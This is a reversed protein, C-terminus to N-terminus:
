ARTEHLYPPLLRSEQSVKPAFIKIESKGPQEEEPDRTYLATKGTCGPTCAAVGLKTVARKGRKGCPGDMLLGTPGPELVCGWGSSRVGEQDLSRPRKGPINCPGGRPSRGGEGDKNEGCASPKSLLSGVRGQWGTGVGHAGEGAGQCNPSTKPLRLDKGTAEPSMGEGERRKRIGAAGPSVKVRAPKAAYGKM